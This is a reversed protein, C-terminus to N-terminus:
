ETVKRLMRNYNWGCEEMDVLCKKISEIAYRQAFQCLKDFGLESLVEIIEHAKPQSIEMYLKVSEDEQIRDYIHGLFNDIHLVGALLKTQPHEVWLEVMDNDYKHQQVIMEM